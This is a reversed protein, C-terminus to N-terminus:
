ADDEGYLRPAGAETVFARVYEQFPQNYWHCRTSWWDRMGSYAFLDKMPTEFGHWFHPDLSGETWHFHAEELVRLQYGFIASCRALEADRLSGFDRIGRLYIDSLEGNTALMHQYERFAEMQGHVVSARRAKADLRIQTALYLLSAIVGFAGVVQGIASIADWGM